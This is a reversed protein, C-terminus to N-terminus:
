GFRNSDAGDSGDESSDTVEEDNIEGESSLVNGDDGVSDGVRWGTVGDAEDV